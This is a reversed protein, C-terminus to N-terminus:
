LHFDAGSSARGGGGIFPPIIMLSHSDANIFIKATILKIASTLTACATISPCQNSVTSQTLSGSNNTTSFLSRWTAFCKRPPATM